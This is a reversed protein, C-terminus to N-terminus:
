LMQEESEFLWRFYVTQTMSWLRIGEMIGLKGNIKIIQLFRLFNTWQSLNLKRFHRALFKKKYGRNHLTIFIWKIEIFIKEMTNFHVYWRYGSYIYKNEEKQFVAIDFKGDLYFRDGKFVFSDMFDVENGYKFKDITITEWLM